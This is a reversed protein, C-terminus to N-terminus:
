YYTELRANSYKIPKLIQDSYLSVWVTEFGREITQFSKLHDISVKFIIKIEDLSECVARVFIQFKMKFLFQRKIFIIQLDRIIFVFKTGPWKIWDLRMNRKTGNSLFNYCRIANKMFLCLIQGNSLISKMVHRVTESPPYQYVILTIQLCECFFGM